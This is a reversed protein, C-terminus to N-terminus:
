HAIERSEGCDAGAKSRGTSAGCGGTRYDLQQGASIRWCRVGTSVVRGGGILTVSQPKIGCMRPVDMGDALAYGVGELVARALENPGHQHTLGFFVGKAQPNNHPTREGSSLASVM